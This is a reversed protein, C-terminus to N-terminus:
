PETLDDYIEEPLIYTAETPYSQLYTHTSNSITVQVSWIYASKEGLNRVIPNIRSVCRQGNIIGVRVIYDIIELNRSPSAVRLKSWSSLTWSGNVKKFTLKQFM